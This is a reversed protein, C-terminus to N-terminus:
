LAIMLNDKLIGGSDVAWFDILLVRIFKEGTTFKKGNLLCVFEQQGDEIKGVLNEHHSLLHHHVHIINEFYNQCLHCYLPKDPHADRYHSRIAMVSRDRHGCISCVFIKPHKSECMILDLKSTFGGQECHRCQSLEIPHQNAEHSLLRFLFVITKNPLSIALQHYKHLRSICTSVCVVFANLLNVYNIKFLTSYKSQNVPSLKLAPEVFGFGIPNPWINKKIREFFHYVVLHKTAIM